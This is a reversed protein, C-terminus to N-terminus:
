RPAPPPPAPTPRPAPQASPRPPMPPRPYDDEQRRTPVKLPPGDPEFIRRPRQQGAPRQGPQAARQGPAGAARQGPQAPRQAGPRPQPPRVAGGGDTGRGGGNGGLARLAAAEDVTSAAATVDIGAARLKLLVESSPLGREKAIEHVRKEPM